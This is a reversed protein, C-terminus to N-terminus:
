RTPYRARLDDGTVVGGYAIAVLGAFIEALADPDSLVDLTAEM